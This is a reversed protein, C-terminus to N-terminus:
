SLTIELASGPRVIVGDGFGVRVRAMERTVTLPFKKGELSAVAASGAVQPELELNVVRLMGEEVAIRVRQQKGDVTQSMSGWGQTAVFFSKFREPTSRPMFSLAGRPGDCRFGSLAPLLSWSSMARTYHGGCEIECWPNRQIPPRPVGDYRGRAGEVIAFAEDVFGEYVMHAAVQYEMGTWVEDSYLMVNAPRGGKPWTCVILGKDKAGAFARPWHKWGTLDSKFNYKYISRMASKVKEEPLIYGLGLQHAWWQGLLQDSMCGPGVEGNRQAYDPLHQQFYEGNWCLEILRAQGSQFISRFEDASQGDGLRRAWEEAARLAALYYGSIFTTVGHLAEDYTNWQDDQLVGAPTGGNAAKDRSILYEMALRVRPWYELFFGEDASNLAERYAKLICSAHGDTFPREGTPHPPSPVETRNNIGGDAGQQHTFDIRRMEKELSPFLHAFSQEYGWVHTCTPPCSANSGEWGYVDGNAIRFVVGIHRGIAANATVCDLLGHPLTSDYFTKRFLMTKDRLEGYRAAVDRMVMRADPWHTAYYCGMSEGAANYKNPYHWALFFPVEAEGGAPVTVTAALATNSTRGPATPSSAEGERLTSFRGDRSFQEWADNWNEFSVFATADQALTALAITGFGPERSSQRETMTYTAGALACLQQYARQRLRASYTLAPDLVRGALVVVRGEGIRQTFQELGDATAREASPALTLDLFQVREPSLSEVGSFRLPLLRELAQLTAGNAPSDSFVIEDINIHGWGGKQEDVIELRATRGAFEKVDWIAPELRENDNGSKARVVQGDVVLRIQTTPYHGGGVLFRIFHRDIVFAEGTMRGTGDDGNVFSNVLGSGAFGSVPQQGPWTGHAPAKGFADGSVTWKEYGKEFDEFVIDPRANAGTLPKGESVTGYARLLPMETGSFVLTAGRDVLAAMETVLADSVGAPADELWIVARAPDRVAGPSFKRVKLDRPRDLPPIALDRRNTAAFNKDDITPDPPITFLDELMFIDVPKDLTPDDGSRARLLLGTAAGERFTENVNSGLSSHSVGDMEGIAAYGIPNAMMAALSITQPRDSDNRIRFRFVAVPLSSDDVELPNWPTFAELSLGVPLGDDQFRLTAVPYDGTMEISKVTPSDPGGVTQLIKATEGAKVAFYFPVFGDRLTNFLQWTTLRGDAGIEFNGTGIGGLHMRADTHIDSLYKRSKKWRELEEPPLERAGWTRGASFAAATGMGAIAVFQRRTLGQSTKLAM